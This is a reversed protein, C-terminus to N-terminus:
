ITQLERLTIPIKEYTEKCESFFNKMFHSVAQTAITQKDKLNLYKKKTQKVHEKECTLYSKEIGSEWESRCDKDTRLIESIVKVAEKYYEDKAFLSRHDLRINGFHNDICSEISICASRTERNGSKAMAKLEDIMGLAFRIVERESVMRDQDADLITNKIRTRQCLNMSQQVKNRAEWGKEYGEGFLAKGWEVICRKAIEATSPEVKFHVLLADCNIEM